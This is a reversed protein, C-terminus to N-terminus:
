FSSRSTIKSIVVIFYLTAIPINAVLILIKISNKKRSNKNLLLEFLLMLLVLGNSLLAIVVFYFGVIILENSKPFLLFLLFLITGIIFTGIAFQMSSSIHRLQKIFKM